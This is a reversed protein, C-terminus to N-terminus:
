VAEVRVNGAAPDNYLPWIKGASDRWVRLEGSAPTPEAAQSDRIPKIKAKRM